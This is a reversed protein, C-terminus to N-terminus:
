TDDCQTIVVLTDGDTMKGTTSNSLADRTEDVFFGTTDELHGELVLDTVGDGAGLVGLSLDDGGHVVDVRELALSAVKDFTKLLFSLSFWGFGALIGLLM